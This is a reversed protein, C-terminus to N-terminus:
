MPDEFACERRAGVIEHGTIPRQQREPTEAVCLAPPITKRIIAGVPNPISM